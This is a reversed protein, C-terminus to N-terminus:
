SDETGLEKGATNVESVNILCYDFAIRGLYVEGYSHPIEQLRAVYFRCMEETREKFNEGLIERAYGEIRIELDEGFRDHLLKSPSIIKYTEGKKLKHFLRRMM